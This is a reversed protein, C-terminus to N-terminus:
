CTADMQTFAHLLRLSLILCQLYFLLIKAQLFLFAFVCLCLAEGLFLKNLMKLFVNGIFVLIKIKAVVGWILTREM